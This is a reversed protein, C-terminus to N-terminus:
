RINGIRHNLVNIYLIQQMSINLLSGQETEKDNKEAKFTLVNNTLVDLRSQIESNIISTWISQSQEVASYDFLMKEKKKGHLERVLDICSETVVAHMSACGPEATTLNEPFGQM